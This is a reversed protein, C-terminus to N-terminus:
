LVVVAKESYQYWWTSSKEFITKNKILLTM